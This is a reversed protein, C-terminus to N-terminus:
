EDEKFFPDQNKDILAFGAQNINLVWELSEIWGRRRQELTRDALKNQKLQEILKCIIDDKSKLKM